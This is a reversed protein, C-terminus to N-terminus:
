YNGINFWEFNREQTKELCKELLTVGVNSSKLIETNKINVKFEQQM